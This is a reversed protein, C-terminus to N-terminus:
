KVKIVVFTIDDDPAENNTWRNGENKLVEIIEEPNKSASNKYIDMVREYGFMEKEKNFLEPLGDSMLLITDDSYIEAERLEYPFDQVAGLPMGKLVIEEVSKTKSRYLLAPPMGAASIQMRNGQIKLISLCMSLMHMNMTKICRTIEQFTFLIDPNSAHSSFLSKTTTVMTGARMGHGTADGIVVTLTGDMGVHFDYYDGGVETATKMYVAIDLHPLQPLVKPLMSLQLQRAEELEQTKRQNEARLLALQARRQEIGKIRSRQYRDFSFGGVLFLVFYSAYAWNTKWWPPKIILRISKGEENWLGDNNSGKVRFVYEGPDLNPYSTFRRTGSYLWDKDLGEMMYAYQNRENSLYSLAAFEFSLFNEDYPLQIEKSLAAPKDFKKFSTIVIPPIFPNDKIRDPHFRTFGKAGPFFMEGNRTKCGTGTVVDASPELGYSADYNRL